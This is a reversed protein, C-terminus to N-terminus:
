VYYVLAYILDNPRLVDKDAIPRVVLAVDGSVPKYESRFVQIERGGLESLASAIREDVVYSDVVPSYRLLREATDMYTHFYYMFGAGRPPVLRDLVILHQGAFVLGVMYGFVEYPDCKSCTKICPPTKVESM